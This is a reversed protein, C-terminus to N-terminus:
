TKSKTLEGAYWKRVNTESYFVKRGVRRSELVGDNVLERLKWESFNCATKLQLPTLWKPEQPVLSLNQFGQKIVRLEGLIEEKFDELYETTPLTVQKLQHTPKM